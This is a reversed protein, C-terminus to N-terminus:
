VQDPKAQRFGAQRQTSIRKRHLYIGTRDEAGLVTANSVFLQEALQNVSLHELRAKELVEVWDIGTRISHTPPYTRKRRLRIGTRHEMRNITSTGVGLKESLERVTLGAGHAKQLESEWDIVPKDSASM